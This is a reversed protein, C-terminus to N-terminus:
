LARIEASKRETHFLFFSLFFLVEGMPGSGDSKYPKIAGRWFSCSRRLDKLLISTPQEPHPFCKGGRHQEAQPALHAITQRDHKHLWNHTQSLQETM